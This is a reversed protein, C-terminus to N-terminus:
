NSQAPPTAPAMPEAPMPAAPAPPSLPADQGMPPPTNLAGAPPMDTGMLRLIPEIGAVCGGIPEGGCNVRLRKGGGMNIVFGAGDAGQMPRPKKHDPGDGRRGHRRFERRDRDRMTERHRPRREEYGEEEAPGYGDEMEAPALPEMEESGMPGESRPGEQAFAAGSAAVTLMLTLAISKRM